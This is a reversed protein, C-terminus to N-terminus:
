RSDPGWYSRGYMMFGMSQAAYDEHTEHGENGLDPFNLAGNVTLADDHDNTFSTNMGAVTIVNLGTADFDRGGAGAYLNFNDEMGVGWKAPGPLSNAHGITGHRPSALLLSGYPMPGDIRGTSVGWLYDNMSLAGFSFGIAYTLDTHFQTFRKIDEVGQAEDLSRKNQSTDVFGVDFTNLVADWNVDENQFAGLYAALMDFVADEGGQFVGRNKWYQTVFGRFKGIGGHECDQGWGCAVLLYLGSPDVYALPNNRVYSYRDLMQPDGANVGVPDASLFRGLTTSYFRAGYDYLGFPTGEDQQGTFKKDTLSISGSRLGGFPYYKATEEVAGTASLVASTSGLHDAVLFHVTGPDGPGTHIRMAMRRGVANYYTVYSEDQDKEYVGGIYVTWTGDTSSKKVLTGKGDYTYTTTVGGNTRTVLQNDGNYTFTDGNEDTLGTTSGLGDQLFYTTVNNNDTASLM